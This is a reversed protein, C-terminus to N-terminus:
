RRGASLPAARLLSAGLAVLALALPATVPVVLLTATHGALLGGFGVISVGLMGLTCMTAGVAARVPSGTTILTPRPTDFRRFALVLVATVLGAAAVLLGLRAARGQM